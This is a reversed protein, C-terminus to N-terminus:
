INFLEALSSLKLINLVKPSVKNILLKKGKNKQIKLISILIGVGSSDIYDVHSMDLEIDKDNTQAIEFLQNKFNKITLMEINGVVSVKIIDQENVIDINM